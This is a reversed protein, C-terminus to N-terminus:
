SNVMLSDQIGSHLTDVSQESFLDRFDSNEESILIEDLIGAWFLKGETWRLCNSINYVAEYVSGTIYKFSIDQLLIPIM